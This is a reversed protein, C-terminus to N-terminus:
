GFMEVTHFLVYTIMKNGYERELWNETPFFSCLLIQM